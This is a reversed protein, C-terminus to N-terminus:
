KRALWLGVLLGAGVAVGLAIQPKRTVFDRTQAQAEQVRTTLRRAQARGADRAQEAAQSVAGAALGSVRQGEAAGYDSLADALSSLDGRLADVQSVLEQRSKRSERDARIDGNRMPM